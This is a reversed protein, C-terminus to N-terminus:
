RTSRRREAFQRLADKYFNKCHWQERHSNEEVFLANIFEKVVAEGESAAKVSELVRVSLGNSM